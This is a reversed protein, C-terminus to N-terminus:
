SRKSSKNQRLKTKENEAKCIRLMSEALYAFAKAWASAAAPSLRSGLQTKFAHLAAEGLKSYAETSVTRM